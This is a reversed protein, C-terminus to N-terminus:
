FNLTYPHYIKDMARLIHFEHESIDGEHDHDEGSLDYTYLVESIFVSKGESLEIIRPQTAVDHKESLWEKTHRNLFYDVEVQRLLKRKCSRLVLWSHCKALNWPEDFSINHFMKISDESMFTQNEPFTNFSGCTKLAGKQYYSDLTSLATDTALYDDGDLEIVVSEDNTVAFQGVNYFNRSAFKRHKNSIVCADIKHENLTELIINLSNDTSCDDVLVIGFDVETKQSVVSEICRKIKAEQNKFCVSFVYDNKLPQGYVINIDEATDVEPTIQKKESKFLKESISGIKKGWDEFSISINNQQNYLSAYNQSKIELGLEVADTILQPSSIPMYLLASDKQTMKNNIESIEAEDIFFKVNKSSSLTKHLVDWDNEHFFLINLNNDIEKVKDKICNALVDNNGNIRVIIHSNINETDINSFTEEISFCFNEYNMWNIGDAYLLEDTPNTSISRISKSSPFPLVCNKYNLKVLKECIDKQLENAYIIFDAVKLLPIVEKHMEHIIFIIKSSYKPLGNKFLTAATERDLNAIIIDSEDCINNSITFNNFYESLQELVRKKPCSSAEENFGVGLVKMKTEM